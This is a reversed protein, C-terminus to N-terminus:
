IYVPAKLFLPSLKCNSSGAPLTTSEAFPSPPPQGAPVEEGLALISRTLAACDSVSPLQLVFLPDYLFPESAFPLLTSPVGRCALEVVIVGVAVAVNVNIGVEVDVFVAVAVAVWVAVGVSVAVGDGVAVAEAVAVAVAASVGEDVAVAVNM